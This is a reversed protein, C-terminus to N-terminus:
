EDEESQETDEEDVLKVVLRAGEAVGNQSMTEDPDCIYQEEMDEDIPILM